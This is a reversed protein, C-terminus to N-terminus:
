SIVYLNSLRFGLHLPCKNLCLILESVSSFQQLLKEFTLTNTVHVQLAYQILLYM